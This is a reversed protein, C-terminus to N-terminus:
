RLGQRCRMAVIGGRGTYSIADNQWVRCDFESRFCGRASYPYKYDTFDDYYNGAFEGYWTAEPGIEGAIADCDGGVPPSPKQYDFWFARAPTAAGFAVAVVVMLTAKRMTSMMRAGM